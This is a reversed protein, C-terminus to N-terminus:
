RDRLRNGIEELSHFTHEVKHTSETQQPLMRALM